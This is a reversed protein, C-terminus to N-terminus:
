VAKQVDEVKRVERVERVLQRMEEAAEERVERVVLVEPVVRVEWHKQFERFPEPGNQVLERGEKEPVLEPFLIWMGWGDVNGARHVGEEISGEVLDRVELIVPRLGEGPGPPPPVLKQWLAEMYYKFALSGTVELADTLVRKKAEFGDVGTGSGTVRIAKDYMKILNKIRSRNGESETLSISEEQMKITTAM